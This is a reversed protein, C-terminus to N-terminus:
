NQRPPPWVRRSTLARHLVDRLTWRLVDVRQFAVRHHRCQGHKAQEAFTRAVHDCNGFNRCREDCSSTHRTTTTTRAGLPWFQDSTEKEGSPVKAVIQAHIHGGFGSLRGAVSGSFVVHGRTRPRKVLQASSSGPCAAQAMSCIASRRPSAPESRPRRRTSSFSVASQPRPERVQPCSTAGGAM